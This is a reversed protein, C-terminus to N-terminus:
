PADGTVAAAALEIPDRLAAVPPAYGFDVEALEDVTMRASIAVALAHLRTAVDDGGSTEAGLLRRSSRDWVLRVITSESGPM